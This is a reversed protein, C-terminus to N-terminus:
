RGVCLTMGMLSMMNLSYGLLYMGIFAPIISLPVAVMVILASRINHLFIFCVFAVILIALILDIVVSHASANTYVSDDTAIEFKVNNASYEKEIAKLEAKAM